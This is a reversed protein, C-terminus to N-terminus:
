INFIFVFGCCVSRGVVVVVVVASTEKESSKTPMAEAARRKFCCSCHTSSLSVCVCGHRSMPWAPSLSFYLNINSQWLWKEYILHVKSYCCVWSRSWFRSVIEYKICIEYKNKNRMYGNHTTHTPSDIPVACMTEDRSEWCRMWHQCPKKFHHVSMRFKIFVFMRSSNRSKVKKKKEGDDDSSELENQDGPLPM